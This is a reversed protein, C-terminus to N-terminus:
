INELVDPAGTLLTAVTNMAPHNFARLVKIASSTGKHRLLDIAGNRIRNLWVPLHIKNQSFPPPLRRIHDFAKLVTMSDYPSTTTEVMQSSTEYEYAVTFHLVCTQPYIISTTDTAASSPPAITVINFGLQDNVPTSDDDAFVFSRITTKGSANAEVYARRNFPDRVPKVFSYMGDCWHGEYFNSTNATFNNDSDIGVQEYWANDGTSSYGYCTGGLGAEQTTNQVLLGCGNVQSKGILQTKSDVKTGYTIFPNIVQRTVITTQSTIVVTVFVVANAGAVSVTSLFEVDFSYYASTTLTAVVNAQTGAAIASSNTAHAAQQRETGDPFVRYVNFNFNGTTISTGSDTQVYCTVTTEAGSSLAGSDIWICNRGRADVTAIRVEGYPTNTLNYPVYTSPSFEVPPGIVQSVGPMGRNTIRSAYVTNVGIQITSATSSQSADDSAVYATTFSGTTSSSGPWPLTGLVVLDYHHVIPISTVLNNYLLRTDTLQVGAIVPLAATNVKFFNALLQLNYKLIVYNRALATPAMSSVSTPPVRILKSEYPLILQSMVPAYNESAKIHPLFSKRAKALLEREVLPVRKDVLNALSKGSKLALKKKARKLKNKERKKQAKVPDTKKMVLEVQHKKRGGQARTTIIEVPMLNRSDYFKPAANLVSTKDSCTYFIIFYFLLLCVIIICM